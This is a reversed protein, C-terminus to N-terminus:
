RAPLRPGQDDLVPGSPRLEDHLRLLEMLQIIRQEPTLEPNLELQAVDIGYEIAADWAPGDGPLRRLVV